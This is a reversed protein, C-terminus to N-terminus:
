TRRIASASSPISTPPFVQRLFLFGEIMDFAERVDSTTVLPADASGDCRFTKFLYKTMALTQDATIPDSPEFLDRLRAIFPLIYHREVPVPDMEYLLRLVSDRGVGTSFRKILQGKISDDPVVSIFRAVFYEQFSRHAFAVNLGDEILLCVAQLADDLLNASKFELQSLAKSSDLYDLAKTRPFEFAGSDYTLLCFAAFATAFDQIDLPTRRERQFGCKLADHKQFLAEYAHQYFLSLKNPIHAVDTYTLLMISLLLPNSLFSRHSEFLGTRLDEVFRDKIPDEFPLKEVLAIAGDLDLPDVRFQVFRELADLEIDPRSSVIMWNRPYLKAFDRVQIAVGERVDIKLEDFGDLLIAFHGAELAKELYDSDVDLGYGGLSGAIADEIRRVDRNMQRLEVFIPTKRGDAIAGLLFHRMLMTKGSGGSGTVISHGSVATIDVISARKIARRQTSVDLPVFFEYLPIPESRIFFSKGRGYQDALRRVYETYTQGLKVLVSNKAGKVTSSALDRIRDLNASVFEAALVNPDFEDAM